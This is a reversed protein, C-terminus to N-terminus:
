VQQDQQYHFSLDSSSIHILIHAPRDMWGYKEMELRLGQQQYPERQNEESVVQEMQKNHNQLHRRMSVTAFFWVALVVITALCCALNCVTKGVFINQHNQDLEAPVVLTYLIVQVLVSLTTMIVMVVSLMKVSKTESRIVPMNRNVLESCRNLSQTITDQQVHKDLMPPLQAEYQLMDTNYACTVFTSNITGNNISNSSLLSMTSNKQIREETCLHPSM